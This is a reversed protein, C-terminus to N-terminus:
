TAFKARLEVKPKSGSFNSSESYRMGVTAIIRVADSLLCLVVVAHAAQRSAWLMNSSRNSSKHRQM